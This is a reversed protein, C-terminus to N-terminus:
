ERSEDEVDDFYQDKGSGYVGYGYYGKGYNGGYYGYSNHYYASYEMKKLNVNNLVININHANHAQLQKITNKFFIKNTRECSVM